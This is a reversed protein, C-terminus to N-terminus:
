KKLQIHNAGDCLGDKSWINVKAGSTFATLAAAFSRSHIADNLVTARKFTITQDLCSGTGGTAQVIFDDEGGFVNAVSVITSEKAIYGGAANGAGIGISFMLFIGSIIKYFPRKMAIMGKLKINM